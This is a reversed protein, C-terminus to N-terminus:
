LAKRRTWIHHVALATFALGAAVHPKKGMLSLLVTAAFTGALARTALKRTSLPRPRAPSVLAHESM